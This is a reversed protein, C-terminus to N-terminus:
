GYESKISVYFDKRNFVTRQLVQVKVSKRTCARLVQTDASEVLPVKGGVLLAYLRSLSYSFFNLYVQVPVYVYVNIKPLINGM